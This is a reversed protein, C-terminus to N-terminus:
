GFFQGTCLCKISSFGSSIHKFGNAKAFPFLSLLPQGLHQFVLHIGKFGNECVIGIRVLSLKDERIHKSFLEYKYHLVDRYHNLTYLLM